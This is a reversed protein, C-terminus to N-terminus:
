ISFPMQSAKRMLDLAPQGLEAFGCSACVSALAVLQHDLSGSLTIEVRARERGPAGTIRVLLSNTIFIDTVPSTCISEPGSWDVYPVPFSRKDIAVTDLDCDEACTHQDTRPCGCASLLLEERHASIPLKTGRAVAVVNGQFRYTRAVYSSMKYKMARLRTMAVRVDVEDTGVLSASFIREM